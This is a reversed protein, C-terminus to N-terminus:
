ILITVVFKGLLYILPIITLCAVTVVRQEFTTLTNEERNRSSNATKEMMDSKFEMAFM